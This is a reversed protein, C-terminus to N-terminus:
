PARDTLLPSANRLDRLIREREARSHGSFKEEVLMEQEEASLRRAPRAGAVEVAVAVDVGEVDFREKLRQERLVTLGMM